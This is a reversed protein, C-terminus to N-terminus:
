GQVGDLEVSPGPASCTTALLSVKVNRRALSRAM